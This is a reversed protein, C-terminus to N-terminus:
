FHSIRFPFFSIFDRFTMLLVQFREADCTDRYGVFSINFAELGKFSETVRACIDVIKQRCETIYARYV